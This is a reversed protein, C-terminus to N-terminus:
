LKSKWSWSKVRLLVLEYIEDEKDAPIDRMLDQLKTSSVYSVKKALKAIREERKDEFYNDYIRAVNESNYYNTEITRNVSHIIISHDTKKGKHTMFDAISKLSKKYKKRLITHFLQRHEVIDRERTNEFIDPINYENFDLLYQEFERFNNKM